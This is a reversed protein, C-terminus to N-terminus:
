SRWAFYPYRALVRWLLRDSIWAGLKLTALLTGATLWWVYERRVEGPIFLVALGVVAVSAAALPIVSSLFPYGFRGYLRTRFIDGCAAFTSIAGGFVRDVWESDSGSVSLWGGPRDAANRFIVTMSGRGPAEVAIELQGPRPAAALAAALEMLTRTEQPLREDDQNQNQGSRCGGTELKIRWIAGEGVLHSLEALETESVNCAPLRSHRAIREEM